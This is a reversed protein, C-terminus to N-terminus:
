HLDIIAINVRKELTKKPSPFYDQYADRVIMNYDVRLKPLSAETSFTLIANDINYDVRMKPHSIGSNEGEGYM